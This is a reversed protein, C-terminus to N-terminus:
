GWSGLLLALDAANTIGDGNLDSPGAMGWNGLLVALDAANVIGDFNLDASDFCLDRARIACLTDWQNTCCFPDVGCVTECCSVDNCGGSAHPTTCSGASGCVALCEIQPVTGALLLGDSEASFRVLYEEGEVAFFQVSSAFSGACAASNADSSCVIATGGCSDYVTIVSQTTAFGSGCLSIRTVGSCGARVIRWEARNDGFGCPTVVGDPPVGTTELLTSDPYASSLLRAEACTAGSRCMALAREACPIDWESECCFMDQFCVTTCCDADDCGPNLHVQTCSGSGKVGCGLCTEQATQVCLSDWQTACCFADLLCVSECCDADSCGPTPHATFCSATSSCVSSDLNRFLAIRGDSHLVLLENGDGSIGIALAPAAVTVGRAALYENATMFGTDKNWISMPSTVGAATTATFAVHNMGDDVGHVTMTTAGGPPEAIQYDAPNKWRVLRRRSSGDPLSRWTTMLLASGDGSFFDVKGNDDPSPVPIEFLPLGPVLETIFPRTRYTGGVFVTMSGGCRDLVPHVAYVFPESLANALGITGVGLLDVSDLDALFVRSAPGGPVPASPATACNRYFEVSPSFGGSVSYLVARSFGGFDGVGGFRTADANMTNPFWPGPPTFAGGPYSPLTVIGTSERWVQNILEGGAAYTRLVATGDRSVRFIYNNGSNTPYITIEQGGALASNSLLLATCTAAQLCRHPRPSTLRTQRTTHLM